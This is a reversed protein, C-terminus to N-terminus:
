YCFYYPLRVIFVGGGHRRGLHNRPFAACAREGILVHQAAVTLHAHRLARETIGDHRTGARRRGGPCRGDISALLCTEGGRAVHFLVGGRCCRVFLGNGLPYGHHWSPPRHGGLRSTVNDYLVQDSQLTLLVNDGDVEDDMAYHRALDTKQGRVIGPPPRAIYPALVEQVWELMIDESFWAKPQCKYFTGELYTPLEHREITGGRQAQMAGGGRRAAASAAFVSSVTLAAGGDVFDDYTSRYDENGDYNDDDSTAVIMPMMDTTSADDEEVLSVEWWFWVPHRSRANLIRADEDDEEGEEDDDEDDEEEEEDKGSLSPSVDVLELLVDAREHGVILDYPPILVQREFEEFSGISEKNGPSCYTGYVVDLRGTKYYHLQNQIAEEPSQPNSFPLPGHDHRRRSSSSSSSSSSPNSPVSFARIGPVCAAALLLRLLPPPPPAGSGRSLPPSEM